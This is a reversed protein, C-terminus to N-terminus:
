MRSARHLFREICGQKKFEDKFMFVDFVLLILPIVSFGKMSICRIVFVILLAFLAAHYIPATTIIGKLRCKGANEIIKGSFYTGVLFGNDKTAGGIFECTIKIKGNKEKLRMVPKGHREDFKVNRNVAESDSLLSILESKSKQFEINIFKM